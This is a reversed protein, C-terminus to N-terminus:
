SKNRSQCESAILQDVHNKNKITIPRSEESRKIMVKNGITFVAVYNHSKLLKTYKFLDLTEPGLADFITLDKFRDDTRLKKKAFLLKKKDDYRHFKVFLTSKGKRTAPTHSCTYSNIPINVNLFSSIQSIKNSVSQFTVPETLEVNRIVIENKTREDNLIKVSTKLEIIDNKLEINEKAIKLTKENTIELQKKVERHETWLLEVSEELDEIKKLHGKIETLFNNKIEEFQTKFESMIAEVRKEMTESSSKFLRMQEKIATVQYDLSSGSVRKNKCESCKWATGNKKNMEVQTKTLKACKSHFSNKCIDCTVSLDKKDMVM